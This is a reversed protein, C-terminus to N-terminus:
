VEGSVESRSTMRSFVARGIITGQNVRNMRTQHPGPATDYPSPLPM